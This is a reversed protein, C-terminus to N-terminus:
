KGGAQLGGWCAGAMSVHGDWAAVVEVVAQEEVGETENGGLQVSAQMCDLDEPKCATKAPTSDVSGSKVAGDVSAVAYGSTFSVSEGM